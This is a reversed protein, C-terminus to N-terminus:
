WSVLYLRLVTPILQGPGPHGLASHRWAEGFLILEEKLGKPSQNRAFWIIINLSSLLSDKRFHVSGEAFGM